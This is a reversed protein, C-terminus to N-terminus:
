VCQGKRKVQFLQRGSMKPICIFEPRRGVVMAIFVSSNAYVGLARFLGCAPLPAGSARSSVMRYCLRLVARCFLVASRLDCGAGWVSQSSRSRACIAPASTASGDAKRTATVVISTLGCGPIAISPYTCRDSHPLFDDRIVRAPDCSVIASHKLVCLRLSMGTELFCVPSESLIGM